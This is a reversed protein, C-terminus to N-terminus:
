RTRVERRIEGLRRWHYRLLRPYSAAGDPLDYTSRLWAPPPIVRQFLYKATRARHRDLAHLALGAVPHPGGPSIFRPIIPNGAVPPRDQVWALSEDWIRRHLAAAVRNPRLAHLVNDPVPAAYVAVALELTRHLGGHLGNAWAERCILDWDLTTGHRRLLLVIDIFSNVRFYDHFQHHRALHVLQDEPGLIPVPAGGIPIEARRSWWAHFAAGPAHDRRWFLRLPDYSIDVHVGTDPHAYDATAVSEGAFLPPDDSPRYGLHALLAPIAEAHEPSTLLDVDVHDRLVPDDYLWVGVALGKIALVPVGAAALSAILGRVVAPERSVRIFAQRYTERLRAITAEPLQCAAQVAPASLTRYGIAECRHMRLLREVASWSRVAAAAEGITAAAEAEGLGHAFSFAVAWVVRREGAIGESGRGVRGGPPLADSRRAFM